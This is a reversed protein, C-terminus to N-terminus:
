HIRHLDPVTRRMKVARCSCSPSLNSERLAGTSTRTISLMDVGAELHFIVEDAARPISGQRRAHDSELTTRSEWWEEFVEETM